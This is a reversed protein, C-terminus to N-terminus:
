GSKQSEADAIAQKAQKLVDQLVAERGYSNLQLDFMAAFTSARLIIPVDHGGTVETIQEYASKSMTKRERTLIAEPTLPVADVARVTHRPITTIASDDV